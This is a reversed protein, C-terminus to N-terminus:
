KINLVFVFVFYNGAVIMSTAEAREIPNINDHIVTQMLASDFVQTSSIVIHM